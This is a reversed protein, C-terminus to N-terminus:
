RTARLWRGLADMQALLGRGHPTLEYQVRAGPGEIAHRLAVGHHVFSTLQRTLEKQSIGAVRRQLERFRLPGNAFVLAELVPVAWRGAVLTVARAIDVECSSGACYPPTDHRPIITAM